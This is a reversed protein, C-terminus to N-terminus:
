QLIGEQPLVLPKLTKLSQTAGLGIRGPTECQAFTELEGNWSPDVPRIKAKALRASSPRLEAFALEMPWAHSTARLILMDPGAGVSM